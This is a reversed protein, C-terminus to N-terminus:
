RSIVYNSTQVVSCAPEASLILELGYKEIDKNCVNYNFHHMSVTEFLPQDPMVHNFDTGQM